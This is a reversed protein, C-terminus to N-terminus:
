TMFSWNELDVLIAVCISFHVGSNKDDLTPSDESDLAPSEMFLPQEDLISEVIMRGFGSSYSREPTVATTVGETDNASAVDPQNIDAAKVTIIGSSESNSDSDLLFILSLNYLQYGHCGAREYAVLQFIVQKTFRVRCSEVTFTLHALLKHAM